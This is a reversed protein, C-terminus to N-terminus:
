REDAEARAAIAAFRTQIDWGEARTRINLYTFFRATAAYPVVAFLGVFALVSWGDSWFPRPPRFQLLESAIARGGVDALLVALVVALALLGLALFADGRGGSAIRQSRALATGGSARELLSVEDVFLLVTMAWFAPVVFVLSAFGVLLALLVRAGFLRPFDKVATRVVDRARVETQFVLRSALVTFPVQAGWALAIAIPWGWEAGLADAALSALVLAPLLSVLAVKGYTRWHVALFRLALDFVELIGRDRFAVRASMVNM